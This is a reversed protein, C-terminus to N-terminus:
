VNDVCIVDTGTQEIARRTDEDLANDTILTDISSWALELNPIRRGIKESEIMVVVERAVEAMVRTLGTMENFTTTGRAVDIGDAGVFLQDFDYARLTQEAVQGQFSESHTDWTGGTMLLTPEHELERIANAVQLSNTMVVLGRKKDLLPILAATTTGSDVVIRNHDRIRAAAADAISQKQKSVKVAQESVMEQPVPVAGGYRRLLLGNKELEALDKRITVESTEFRQSLEDVSVSGQETLLTVITHRRQQTNRKSM